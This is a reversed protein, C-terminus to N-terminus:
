PSTMLPRNKLNKQAEAKTVRHTIKLQLKKSTELGEMMRSKIIKKSERGSSIRLMHRKPSSTPGRM